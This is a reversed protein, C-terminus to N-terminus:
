PQDPTVDEWDLYEAKEDKQEQLWTNYAEQKEQQLLAENLPRVERGNVTLVYYIEGNAGPQPESVTELPMTFVMEALEPSLVSSLYEEPYWPLARGFSAENENNNLEEVLTDMEEGALVRERLTEAQEESPVALYTVQAQERELPVDQTVLDQVEARLLDTRIIRRFGQESLGVEQLFNTRFNNYAQQYESETMISQTETVTMTPSSTAELAAERDYGMMQEIREEVAEDSVTVGAEEAKQRVIREEIMQDLVDKGFLTAMEPSLQSELQAQTQQIQQAFGSMQPDTTDVQTLYQQYQFIQNRTMLREYRVRSQYEGVTIEENGVTAVPRNPKIIMETIVGYGIILVILAGIGIASWTIIRQIREDKRRVKHQRRTLRSKPNRKKAM